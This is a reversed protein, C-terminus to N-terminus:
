AALTTEPLCGWVSPIGHVNANGTAMDFNGVGELGVDLGGEVTKLMMEVFGNVRVDDEGDLFSPVDRFNVEVRVPQAHIGFAHGFVKVKGEVRGQLLDLPLDGLVAVADVTVLRAGGAFGAVIGVVDEFDRGEFRGGRRGGFRHGVTIECDAVADDVTFGDGHTRERDLLGYELEFQLLVDKDNEGIGVGLAEIDKITVAVAGEAQDLRLESGRWQRIARASNCDPCSRCGDPIKARM